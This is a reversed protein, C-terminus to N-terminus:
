QRGAPNTQATVDLTMTVSVEGAAPVTIKQKATLPPAPQPPPAGPPANPTAFRPGYSSLTLEYEGAALGELVFNGRADVDAFRGSLSRNTVDTRRANVSTRAGAPLVGNVLQMQGRVVATGYAFVLKVGQRPQGATVKLGETMAQGDAEIRVLLFGPARQAEVRFNVTSSPLGNVRFSGDRNIPVPMPAYGISTVDSFGSVTLGGNLQAFLSTTMAADTVGEIVIIGSLTAGPSARLELGEVAGDTVEFPVYESFYAPTGAAPSRVSAVVGYRGPLLGEFRVLGRTDSNASPGAVTYRGAERAAGYSVEVGTLPQNTQADVVRATVAYTKPRETNVRIDIDKSENGPTVAIPKAEKDSRTGPHYTQPFNNGFSFAPSNTGVAVFYQGEMLGFLRYEGRDNTEYMLSENPTMPATDMRGNASRRFLQLRAAVLSRGSMDTVKGAMVGGPTLKFDLNEIQEGAGVNITRWSIYWDSKQEDSVYGPAMTQARYRGAAVGTLRYRGEEDTAARAVPLRNGEGADAPTLAVIVDAAPKGGLTVRGSVAATGAQDATSSAQAGVMAACVLMWLVAAWCQRLPLLPWSPPLTQYVLENM